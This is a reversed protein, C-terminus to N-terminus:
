RFASNGELVPLEFAIEFNGQPLLIGVELYAEVPKHFPKPLFTRGQGDYLRAAPPEFEM